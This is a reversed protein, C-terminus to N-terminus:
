ANEEHKEYEFIEFKDKINSILSLIKKDDNKPNKSIKKILYKGGGIYKIEIDNDEFIKLENKIKELGNKDLTQVKLIYKIEVEKEKKLKEILKEIKERWNKPIEKIKEETLNEFFNTLSGYKELIKNGFESYADELNKGLEKAALSLINEYKKEKKYEEIKEKKEKEKVRKLILEVIKKEKDVRIVKAVYLNNLKVFERIDNVLGSYVETVPIIGSFDKYEILECLASFPTIEKVVCLVNEDEKPSGLKKVM